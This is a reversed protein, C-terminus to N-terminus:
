LHHLRSSLLLRDGVISFQLLSVTPLPNSEAAQEYAEIASIGDPGPLDGPVGGDIGAGGFGVEVDRFAKEYQFLQLSHERDTFKQLVPLMKPRKQERDTM